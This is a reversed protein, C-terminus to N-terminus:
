KVETKQHIYSNSRKFRTGRRQKNKNRILSFLICDGCALYRRSHRERASFDGGRGVLKRTPAM